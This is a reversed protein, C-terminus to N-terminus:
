GSWADVADNLRKFYDQKVSISREEASICASTFAGNADAVADLLQMHEDVFWAAEAEVPEFKALADSIIPGAPAEGRFVLANVLSQEYPASQLVLRVTGM